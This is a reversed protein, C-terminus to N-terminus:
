NVKPNWYNLTRNHVVCYVNIILMIIYSLTLVILSKVGIIM